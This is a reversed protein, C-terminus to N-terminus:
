ILRIKMDQVRFEMKEMQVVFNKPNKNELQMVASCTPSIMAMKLVEKIVSKNYPNIKFCYNKNKNTQNCVILIKKIIMKMM